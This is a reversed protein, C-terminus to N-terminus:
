NKILLKSVVVCKFGAISYLTVMNSKAASGLARWLPRAIRSPRKGERFDMVCYRGHYLWTLCLLSNDCVAFCHLFFHKVFKKYMQCFALSPVCVLYVLKFNWTTISTKFINNYKWISVHPLWLGCLYDKQGM